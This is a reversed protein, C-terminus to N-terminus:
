SPVPGRNFPAGHSSWHSRVTDYQSSRNPRVLLLRNSHTHCLRARFLRGRLRVSSPESPDDRKFRTLGANSIQVRTLVNFPSAPRQRYIRADASSRELSQSSYRHVALVSARRSASPAPPYSMWHPPTATLASLNM